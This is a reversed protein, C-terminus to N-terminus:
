FNSLAVKEAVMKTYSPDKGYAPNRMAKYMEQKSEYGKSGQPTGQSTGALTRKPIPSGKSAEYQSKLAEVSFMVQSQNDSNVNANFAEIQETSWSEKAWEIMSQYTDKGGVTDFVKATQAEVIAQQGKIYADVVEKSLGKTKLEKYSEESISGAENIEAQYKSLAEPTIAGEPTEEAQTDEDKNPVELGEQKGEPETPTQQKELLEEYKAKYDVESHEEPEKYEPAEDPNAKANAEAERTEVLEVMEQEHTTLEVEGNTQQAEQEM